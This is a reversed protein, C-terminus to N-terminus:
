RSAAELFLADEVCEAFEIVPSRNWRDFIARAIQNVTADVVDVDQPCGLCCTLGCPASSSSRRPRQEPECTRSAFPFTEVM